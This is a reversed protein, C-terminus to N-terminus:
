YSPYGIVDFRDNDKGRLKWGIKGRNKGSDGSEKIKGKTKPLEVWATGQIGASGGKTSETRRGIGATGGKTSERRPSLPEPSFSPPPKGPLFSNESLDGERAVKESPFVSLNSNV